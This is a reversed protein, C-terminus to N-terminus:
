TTPRITTRVWTTSSRYVSMSRYFPEEEVHVEFSTEPSIGFRSSIKEGMAPGLARMPMDRTITPSLDVIVRPMRLEPEQSAPQACGSIVALAILPSLGKVLM